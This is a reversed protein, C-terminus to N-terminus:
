DYKKVRQFLVDYNKLGAVSHTLATKATARHGETRRDKRGDTQKDKNRQHIIDLHNFINNFKIGEPGPLGLM